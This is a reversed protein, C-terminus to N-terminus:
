KILMDELTIGRSINSAVWRPQKGRGTWTEEANMPNRYRPPVVGRTVPKHAKGRGRELLEEVTMGLESAIQVVQLYGKQVRQDQKDNILSRAEAILEELEAVSLDSLDHSM